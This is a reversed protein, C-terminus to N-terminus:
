SIVGQHRQDHGQDEEDAGRQVDQVQEQVKGSDKLTFASIPEFHLQSVVSKPSSIRLFRNGDNHGYASVLLPQFVRLVRFDM